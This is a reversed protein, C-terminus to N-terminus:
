IGYGNCIIYCVFNWVIRMLCFYKMGMFVFGEDNGWPKQTGNVIIIKKFLDSINRSSNIEQTQKIDYSKPM